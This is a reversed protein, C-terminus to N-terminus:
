GGIECNEQDISRRRRQRSVADRGNVNWILTTQQKAVPNGRRRLDFYTSEWEWQRTVQHDAKDVM